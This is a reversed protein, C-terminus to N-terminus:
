GAGNRRLDLVLTLALPKRGADGERTFYSLKRARGDAVVEFHEEKLDSVPANTRKDRVLADLFVVRHQVRVTEEDAQPQQPTQAEAAAPQQGSAVSALALVFILAFFKTKM